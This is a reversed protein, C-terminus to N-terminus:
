AVEMLFTMDVPAPKRFVSEENTRDCVRRSTRENVRAVRVCDFTMDVLCVFVRTRRRRRRNGMRRNTARASAGTNTHELQLQSWDFAIRDRTNRARETQVYTSYLESAGIEGYTRKCYLSSNGMRRNNRACSAGGIGSM